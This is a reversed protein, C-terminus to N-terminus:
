RADGVKQPRLHIRAHEAKTVIKLNEPRNDLINGNIHHVIEDSSLHRGIIKEVIVRHLHKGFYKKYTKGEGKGLNRIRAKLRKEPTWGESRNMPNQERNYKSLHPAKHGKSHGPKNYTAPLWQNVCKKSCFNRERVQSPHKEFEKGCWECKVKVKM